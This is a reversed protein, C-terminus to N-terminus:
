LSAIKEDRILLFNDFFFFFREMGIINFLVFLRFRVMFNFRFGLRFMLWFKFTLIPVGLEIFFEVNRSLFLLFYEISEWDFRFFKDDLICLNNFFIRFTLKFTWWFLRLYSSLWSFIQNSRWNPCCFCVIAWPLFHDGVVLLLYICLFFSLFQMCSMVLIFVMNFFYFGELFRVLFSKFSLQLFNFFLKLIDIM